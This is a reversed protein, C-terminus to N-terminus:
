DWSKKWLEAFAFQDASFISHGSIAKLFARSKNYERIAHELIDLGGTKTLHERKNNRELRADYCWKNNEKFFDPDVKINKTDYSILFSRTNNAGYQTLQVSLQNDVRWFHLGTASKLKEIINKDFRKGANEQFVRLITLYPEDPELKANIKELNEKIQSDDIQFAYVFPIYNEEISAEQSASLEYLTMKTDVGIMQTNEIYKNLVSPSLAVKTPSVNVFSNRFLKDVPHKVPYVIASSSTFRM